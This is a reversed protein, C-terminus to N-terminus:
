HPSPSFRGALRKGFAIWRREYYFTSLHALLFLVVFLLPRKAYKEYVDGSGLWSEALLPHLVYLSYSIAAVYILPRFNLWRVLATHPNLLTSGVLAAAAYPRFYPLWGADLCSLLLLLLLPWQPLAKLYELVRSGMRGHYVLALTCGALIEDIRFYTASSAYVGHWARVLTFMVCLAPLILLSRVGFVAMLAAIGFYFQMEICVSWLHATLSILREPPFNAYFLYHAAWLDLSAGAVTLVVALYLWALPVVRFFRRALFDPLTAEKLLISTILFGSLVFFIVMGAVGTAVNFNMSKPGLPLFHAALVLLISVGRWGDLVGLHELSKM